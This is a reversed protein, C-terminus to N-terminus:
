SSFVFFVSFLLDVIVSLLTKLLHYSNRFDHMLLVQPLDSGEVLFIFGRMLKKQMYIGVIIGRNWTLLLEFFM